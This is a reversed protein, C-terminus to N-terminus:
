SKRERKYYTSFNEVDLDEIDDEEKIKFEPDSSGSRSPSQTSAFANVGKAISDGLVQTMALYHSFEGKRLAKAKCNM